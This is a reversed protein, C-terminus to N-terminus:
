RAARASGGGTSRSRCPRQARAQHRTATALTLLSQPGFLLHYTSPAGATTSPEVLFYWMASNFGVDYIRRVTGNPGSQTTTPSVVQAGPAAVLSAMTVGQVIVFSPDLAASAAM